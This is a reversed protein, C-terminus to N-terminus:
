AMSCRKMPKVIPLGFDFDLVDEKLLPITVTPFAPEELMEPISRIM